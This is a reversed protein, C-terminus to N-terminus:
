QAVPLARCKWNDCVTLRQAAFSSFVIQWWKDSNESYNLRHNIHLKLCM